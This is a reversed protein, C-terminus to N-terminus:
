LNNKDTGTPRDGGGVRRPEDRGFLFYLIVGIIPFFIVVILWLAKRGSGQIAGGFIDAIVYIWLVVTILFLILVVWAITEM